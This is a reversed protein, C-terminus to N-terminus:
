ASDTDSHTEISCIIGFTHKGTNTPFYTQYMSCTAIESVKKMKMEMGTQELYTLSELYAVQIVRCERIQAWHMCSLFVCAFSPFMQVERCISLGVPPKSVFECCHQKCKNNVPANVHLYLASTHKQLFLSIFTYNFTSFKSWTLAPVRGTTQYFHLTM